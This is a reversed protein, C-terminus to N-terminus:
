IDNTTKKFKMHCITPKMGGNIPPIKNMLCFIYTKRSAIEMKNYKQKCIGTKFLCIHMRWVFAVAEGM